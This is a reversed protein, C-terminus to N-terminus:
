VNLNEEQSRMQSGWEGTPSPPRRPLLLPMPSPRILARASTPFSRSLFTPKWYIHEAQPNKKKQPQIDSHWRGPLM